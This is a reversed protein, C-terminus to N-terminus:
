TSRDPATLKVLEALDAFYRGHTQRIAAEDTAELLVVEREVGSANHSLEINLREAVAAARQSDEYRRLEVIKGARRDYDILLLM